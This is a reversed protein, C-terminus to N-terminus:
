CPFVVGLSPGSTLVLGQPSYQILSLSLQLNTMATLLEHYFTKPKEDKQAIYYAVREFSELITETIKGEPSRSLYKQFIVKANDTLM